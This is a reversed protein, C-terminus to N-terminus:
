RRPDKTGYKENYVLQRFHDIPEQDKAINLCAKVAKRAEWCEWFMSLTRGRVCDAYEKIRPQCQIRNKEKFRRQAEEEDIRSLLHM